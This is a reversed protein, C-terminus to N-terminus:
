IYIKGYTTVLLGLLLRILTTKGAGDPGILGIIKGTKISFSINNIAINSDFKKTLKEVNVVIDSM